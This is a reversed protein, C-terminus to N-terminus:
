AIHGTAGKRIAHGAPTLREPRRAYGQGTVQREDGGSSLEEGGASGAIKTFGDEDHGHRNRRMGAYSTPTVTTVAAARMSEGLAQDSDVAALPSKMHFAQASSESGYDRKSREHKVLYRLISIRAPTVQTGM